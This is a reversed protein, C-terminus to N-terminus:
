RRTRTPCSRRVWAGSSSEMAWIFWGPRSEQRSRGMTTRIRTSGSTARMRIWPWSVPITPNNPGAILKDNVLRGCLYIDTPTDPAIAVVDTGDFVPTADHIEGRLLRVVVLDDDGLQDAIVRILM